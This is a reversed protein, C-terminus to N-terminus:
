VEPFTFDISRTSISAKPAEKPPELISYEIKKKREELEEHAVLMEQSSSVDNQDSENTLFGLGRRDTNLGM